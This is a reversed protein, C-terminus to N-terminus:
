RSQQQQVKGIQYGTTQVTESAAQESRIQNEQNYLKRAIRDTLRQKSSLFAENLSESAGLTLKIMTKSSLELLNTKSVEM